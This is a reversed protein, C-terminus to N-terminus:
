AWVGQGCLVSVGYILDHGRCNGVHIASIWETARIIQQGLQAHMVDRNQIALAYDTQQRISVQSPWREDL